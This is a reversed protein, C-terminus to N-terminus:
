HPACSMVAHTADCVDYEGSYMVVCFYFLFLVVCFYVPFQEVNIKVNKSFSICM